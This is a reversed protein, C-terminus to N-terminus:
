AKYLSRLVGRAFIGTDNSAGEPRLINQFGGLRVAWGGLAPAWSRGRGGGRGTQHGEDQPMPVGPAAGTGVM